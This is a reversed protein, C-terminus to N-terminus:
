LVCVSVKKATQLLEQVDDLRLNALISVITANREKVVNLESLFSHEVHDGMEGVLRGPGGSTAKRM